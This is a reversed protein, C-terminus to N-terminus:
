RRPGRSFNRDKFNDRRGSDEKPRAINVVIKRGDMEFNNFKEIATKAEEDTSMEVFAFGRSQGSFKDVILSCSEVKGAQSFLERLQDEGASYPLSGVFLKTSM